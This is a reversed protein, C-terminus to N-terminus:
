AQLPRAYRTYNVPKTAPHALQLVIQDVHQVYWQGQQELVACVEVWEYPCEGASPSWDGAPERRPLRGGAVLEVGVVTCGGRATRRVADVLNRWGLDKCQGHVSAKQGGPQAEGSLAGV